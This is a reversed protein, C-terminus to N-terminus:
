IRIKLAGQLFPSCKAVRILLLNLIGFSWFRVECNTIWSQWYGGSCICSEWGKPCWWKSCCITGTVQNNHNRVSFLLFITFWNDSVCNLLKSCRQKWMECQTIFEYLIVVSLSCLFKMIRELLFIFDSGGFVCKTWLLICYKQLLLDCAPYCFCDLNYSIIYGPFLNSM